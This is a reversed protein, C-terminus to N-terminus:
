ALAAFLARLEEAVDDSSSLTSSLEALLLEGYRKKLRYATMKVAAETMGRRAAIEAYPIASNEGALGNKLDDYLEARGSEAPPLSEISAPLSVM